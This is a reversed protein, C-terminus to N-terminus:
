VTVDNPPYSKLWDFKLSFLNWRARNYYLFPESVEFKTVFPLIGCKKTKQIKMDEIQKKLSSQFIFLESKQFPVWFSLILSSWLYCVQVYLSFCLNMFCVSCQYFFEVGPISMLKLYLSCDERKSFLSCSLLFYLFREGSCHPCVTNIGSQAPTM